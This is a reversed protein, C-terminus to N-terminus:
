MRFRRPRSPVLSGNTVIVHFSEYKSSCINLDTAERISRQARDDCLGPNSAPDFGPAWLGSRRVEM